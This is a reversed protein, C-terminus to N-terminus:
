LRAASALDGCCPPHLADRRFPQGCTVLTGGFGLAALMESRLANRSIEAEVADWTRSRGADLGFAEAAALAYAAGVPTTEYSLRQRDIDQSHGAQHPAAPVLRFGSVTDAILSEGNAEGRPPNKEAWLGAPVSKLVPELRFQVAADKGERLVEIRHKTGVKGAAKDMPAIGFSKNPTAAGPAVQIGSELDKVPIVSHTALRLEKPNVVYRVAAGGNEQIKRVLGAEVSAGAIEKEAPLFTQQFESWQLPPKDPPSAGFDVDFHVKFGMVKVHVDAHGGFEPGWLSLDAGADFSLHHTGFAHVTVEASMDVHADASYQFPKWNVLFNASADFNAHVNGDKWVASLSGGAMFIHPVLAYYGGGTISLHDNVQWHIGVRPVKPYHAPVQFRPHYGGLTVVFDGAQPHPPLWGAFAFGGTLHCDRSFIYSAQTLQAQALVVGEEPVVSARVALQAVALPPEPNGPVRPPVTLTSLGVLDVEFRKGFEVILLAFSELLKFSTFAVGAALFYQGQQPAVADGLAQLQRSLYGRAAGPDTPPPAPPQVAAAVLPFAAMRDVPPVTLNRNYGFGAALGTVYFFAPGGLPGDLVAYVFLSPVDGALEAFSGIASLGLTETRVIAFGDFEPVAARPNKLLAGAVTVPGQSFSLGLGELAFSPTFDVGQTLPVSMSLGMLDIELGFAAVSGDILGILTGGAYKLGLREVKVPGFSKQLSLWQTGDNTAPLAAGPGGPAPPAAAVGAQRGDTLRGSGADLALPLDLVMPAGGGPRVQVMLGLGPALDGQAPFTPGGAPLLQNLAALEAQTYAATAYSVQFALALTEIDSLAPGVIPLKGLASLNIGAAMDVALLSKRATPDIAGHHAFLAKQVTLPVAAAPAGTIAAILDGLNLGAKGQGSGYVAVFDQVGPKSDLLLEFDLEKETGPHFTLRGQVHRQFSKDQQALVAVDVEVEADHGFDAIFTFTFEKSFTNYTAGLKKVTVETLAPPLHVDLGGGFGNQLATVLQAPPVLNEARGSFTWGKCSSDYAAGVGFKVSGVQFAGFMAGATSKTTGDHSFSLALNTLKLDATGVGFSWDSELATEFSYTKARIDAGMNLATCTLRPVDLTSVLGLDAILGALDLKTGPELSCGMSMEPLTLRADLTGGSVDVKGDARTELFPKGLQGNIAAFRVRLDHFRLLGDFAEYTADLAVTTGISVPKKAEVNVTLDIGALHLKQLAGQIPALMATVDSAAPFAGAEPALALFSAVHDFSLDQGGEKLKADFGLLTLNDSVFATSLDLTAGEKKVEASLEAFPSAHIGGGQEPDEQLLSLLKWALGAELGGVKWPSGPSAQLRLRPTKGQYLDIPGEIKLLAEGLLWPLIPQGMTAEFRLGKLLQGLVSAPVPTHGHDAELTDPLSSQATQSDLIFAAGSYSPKTYVSFSLESFTKALNWSRDAIEVTIAVEAQGAASSFAAQVRHSSLAFISRVLPNQIAAQAEATLEGEIAIETTTSSVERANALALVDGGLFDSFLRTISASGLAQGSIQLPAGLLGSRVAAIIQTSDM